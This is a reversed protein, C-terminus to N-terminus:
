RLAVVTNTGEVVRFPTDVPPNEIIDVVGSPWRVELRSASASTGVGFHATFESQSAYSGGSRIEEKQKQGDVTLTLRAGIGNRNSRQGELLVRVYHGQPTDNRLLDPTDNANQVLVDVDGDNDYDGFAVGRSMKVIHMGDGSTDTVNVFRGDRTNRFLFNRQASSSTKDFEEINDQIHGNAIFLDLWGDSDVDFLRTGWSVNPLSQGMGAVFSTDSFFGEGDNRYVTNYQRQFNTIVLDLRGDRNYDGVAIGMSGQANGSEDTDVGVMWGVDQFKGTGDNQFLFNPTGDNAVYIDLDGDDDLDAFAVGLGKGGTEYVGAERTIDTFTGDGNNRYLRDSDAEFYEPGCYIEYGQEHCVKHRQFDWLCYFVVYLDLDGDNDIDGFAASSSWRTDRVGAKDAVDTFTGDGNNHYLITKGYNTVFLDTWGDNDYDGACVGVGYGTDGVGARDTVDEFRGDHLNRYLRNKGHEPVRDAADPTDGSNVLYLDLWGDNDYDFWAAGSGITEIFYRRGTRGDQHRFEIGAQQTVAAFAFSSTADDARTTL